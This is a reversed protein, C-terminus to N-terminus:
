LIVTIKGDKMRSIPNEWAIDEGPPDKRSWGCVRDFQWLLVNSNYEEKDKYIHPKDQNVYVTFVYVLEPCGALRIVQGHCHFAGEWGNTEQINRNADLKLYLWM